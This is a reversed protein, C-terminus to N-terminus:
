IAKDFLVTIILDGRAAEGYCGVPEVLPDWRYVPDVACIICCGLFILIRSATVFATVTLDNFRDVNKLNRFYNTM